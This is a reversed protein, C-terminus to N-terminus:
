VLERTAFSNLVLGLLLMLSGALLYPRYQEDYRYYVQDEIETKELQNIEEMALSLGNASRVNFYRGGTDAAIQGLLEEDLSFPVTIIRQRGLSDTVEVPADGNTGVGITYIKIGLAKAARVAEQPTIIGANSEGDSLLVMIRSKVKADELRGAATAIADGIATRLEDDQLSARSGKGDKGPIDVTELIALLANHDLTLPSRSVAYGGFTVLGILDTERQAIFERFTEKVVDLRRVTRDRTSFDLAEMSESVDVVMQIAIADTSEISKSLSHRPRALAIICLATGGIFLLPLVNRMFVRWTMTSQVVATASFLIGERRRPTYIWVWVLALPILLALFWPHAFEFM